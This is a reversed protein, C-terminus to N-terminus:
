RNLLAAAASGVLNAYPVSTIEFAIGREKATFQEMTKTLAPLFLSAKWFSSGEAAILAPQSPDKGLGAEELVATLNITVLKAAREYLRAAITLLSQRDTDNACLSAPLSDGQPDKVFADIDVSRLTECSAIRSRFAQSFQGRQAASRATLCILRGMYVGGVMKEYLHNGPLPDAQDLLRDAEGRPFHAYAGTEANILMHGKKKEVPYRSIRATQEPYCTNTGTGLVFGLAGSYKGGALKNLAGCAAATSDNLLVWDRRGAVEAKRLAAELTACVRMGNTGEVQVGKNFNSLIGDHGPTIAAEYSFCYGILTDGNLHPKLIEVMENLYEERTLPHSSGPMKGQYLSEIRPDSGEMFTVRALRLNTGGADIVLVPENQPLSGDTTLYTPLMPLSSANDRLGLRIEKRFADTQWAMDILDPHMGTQLLFEDIERSYPFNSM